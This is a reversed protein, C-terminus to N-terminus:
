GVCPRFRRRSRTRRRLFEPPGARGVVRLGETEWQFGRVETQLLKLDGRQYRLKEQNMAREVEDQFDTPVVLFHAKDQERLEPLLQFVPSDRDDSLLTQRWNRRPSGLPLLDIVVIHEGYKSLLHELGEM